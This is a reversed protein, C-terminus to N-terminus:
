KKESLCSYGSNYSYSCWYPSNNWCYHESYHHHYSNTFIYSNSFLLFLNLVVKASLHKTQHKLLGPNDKPIPTVSSSPASPPIVTSSPVPSPVPECQKITPKSVGFRNIIQVTVEESTGNVHVKNAFKFSTNVDDVTVNIKLSPDDLPVGPYKCEIVLLLAGDSNDTCNEVIPQSPIGTIQMNRILVALYIM